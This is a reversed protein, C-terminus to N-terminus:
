FDPIFHLLLSFCVSQSPSMLLWERLLSAPSPHMFERDKAFSSAVNYNDSLCFKEIDPWPGLCGLGGRKMM